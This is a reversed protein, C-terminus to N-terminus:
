HRKVNSKGNYLSCIHKEQMSHICYLYMSIGNKLSDVVSQEDSEEAQPSIRLVGSFIIGCVM